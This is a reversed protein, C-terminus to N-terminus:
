VRGVMGAPRRRLCRRASPLDDGTVFGVLSLAIMAANLTVPNFAAVLYRPARRSVIATALLMLGINLVFPWRPRWPLLWCCGFAVEGLGLLRVLGPAARESAGSATMLALEDPHRHLLKPVLGHYLWVFAITARALGHMLSRQLALRPDVDREIWLRLRDFSWATAWGLLPRFVGADFARGLAGFRTRYDYWTLFRVGAHQPVYQWYGSGHAILSKPDDSWFRLASTRAGHRDERTGVTEGEGRIAVGFGIRTAYLFRQPQSGDPRPLYEIDTFRLDWREHLEPTQTRRWLEDMSGRITTEVYIGMSTKQTVRFPRASETVSM